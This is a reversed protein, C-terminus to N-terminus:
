RSSFPSKLSDTMRLLLSFYEPGLRRAIAQAVQYVLNEWDHSRAVSQRAGRAQDTNASPKLSEEIAASWQAANEALRIFERFPELSPIPTGVVPRGCALYEHLKLPYIYKTYEDQRYPMVCVDFHQPYAALESTTKGGLFRVNKQRSLGDIHLQIEPHPNLAGVFVFFWEPHDATLQRLLEWDLQRKIRGTYGIRPHPIVQLDEPEAVPRSYAEFDVGNPVFSTNANIKGKKALLAPSHIFVQDVRTILSAEVESIPTDVASFSYEDDIHYCSLDAPIYDLAATFEPRWIYLVIKKCGKRILIQRSSELRRRSTFEALWRPSYFLPLFPSNSHVAFEIGPIPTQDHRHLFNQPRLLQSWHEAPNLWLVPFYRALRTMVHHRPQWQWHWEDPVLALVGVDPILPSESSAM